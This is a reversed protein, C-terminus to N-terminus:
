TAFYQATLAEHARDLDGLVDRLFALVDGRRMVEADDYALRACLKGTIRAPATPEEGRGIRDLHDKVAHCGYNLARPARSDFLMFHLVLAPEM